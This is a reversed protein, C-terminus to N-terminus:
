NKKANMKVNQLTISGYDFSLEFNQLQILRINGHKM